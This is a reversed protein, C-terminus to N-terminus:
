LYRRDEDEIEQELMKIKGLLEEREKQWADLINMVVSENVVYEPFYLPVWVSKDVLKKAEEITM